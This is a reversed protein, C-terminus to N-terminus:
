FIVAALKFNGVWCIAEHLHEVVVRADFEFAGGYSRWVGLNTTTFAVM